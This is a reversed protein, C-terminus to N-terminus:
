TKSLLRSCLLKQLSHYYGNFTVQARANICTRRLIFDDFKDSRVSFQM